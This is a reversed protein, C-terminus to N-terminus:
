EFLAFAELTKQATKQWSFDKAYEYRMLKSPYDVPAQLAQYLSQAMGNVDYPDFYNAFEGAVEPLSSTNAAAVPLGCALGELLPLGFGEYLSPFLLCRAQQYLRVLADDDVFGTLRVKGDLRLQRARNLMRIESAEDMHCAILLDTSRIAPNNAYRSQLIAFAELARDMNKRPDFGGAYFVYENASPTKPFPYPQYTNKAALPTVIHKKDQVALANMFDSQTHQSIHLYLDFDSELQKLKDKFVALAAAPLHKTYEKEMVLLILDFITVAFACRETQRTPMFVNHM